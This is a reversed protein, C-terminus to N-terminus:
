QPPANKSSLPQITLCFVLILFNKYKKLFNENRVSFWSILVIKKIDPFLMLVQEISKTKQNRFKEFWNTLWIHFLPSLFYHWVAIILLGRVIIATIKDKMLTNEFMPFYSLLLIFFLVGVFFFSRKKTKKNGLINPTTALQPPMASQYKESIYKNFFQNDINQIIKINMLGGLIGAVLHCSLYSIVIYLSYQQNNTIFIATIKNLFIDIAVWFSKGFILTLIILHQFASYMLCFVSLMFAAIQTTRINKNQSGLLFAGVSGELFVAFYAMPPTHPSLIFKLVIVVLTASIIQKKSESYIAIITICIAAILSLFLGAFPVKFGHLIGGLFAESFAWLATLRMIVQADHKIKEEVFKTLTTM